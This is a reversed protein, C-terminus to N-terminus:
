LYAIAYTKKIIELNSAFSCKVGIHKASRVAEIDSPIQSPDLIHKMKLLLDSVCDFHDRILPMVEIMALLEQIKNVVMLFYNIDDNCPKEKHQMRQVCFQGFALKALLTDFPLQVKTDAEFMKILMHWVHMTSVLGKEYWTIPFLADFNLEVQEACMGFSLCLSMVYKTIKM